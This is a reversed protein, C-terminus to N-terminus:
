QKFFSFFNESFPTFSQTHRILQSSAMNSRLIIAQFPLISIKLYSSSHNKSVIFCFLVHSGFEIILHWLWYGKSVKKFTYRLEAHLASLTTFFLILMYLVHLWLYRCPLTPFVQGWKCILAPSIRQEFDSRWYPMIMARVLVRDKSKPESNEGSCFKRSPKGPVTTPEEKQIDM